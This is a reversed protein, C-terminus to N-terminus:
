PAVSSLTQHTADLPTPVKLPSPDSPRTRGAIPTGLECPDLHRSSSKSTVAPSDEYRRADDSGTIRSARLRPANCHPCSLSEISLEDPSPSRGDDDAATVSHRAMELMCSSCLHHGCCSTKLVSGFYYMCIPCFLTHESTPDESREVLVPAPAVKGLRERGLGGRQAAPQTAEPRGNTPEHVLGASCCSGGALVKKVWGLSLKKRWGTQERQVVMAPDMVAPM